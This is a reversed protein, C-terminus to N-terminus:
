PPARVQDAEIRMVAALIREQGRRSRTHRVKTIYDPAFGLAVSATRMSPWTFRGLTFPVARAVGTHGRRLVRDPNGDRIAAYITAQNIGLTESAARVSAYVVGGIRVPCPPVGVKGLGVRDLMGRRRAARVTHPSVGLCAAASRVNPYTVGRIRINSIRAPRTM